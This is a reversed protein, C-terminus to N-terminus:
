ALSKEAETAEGASLGALLFAWASVGFRAFPYDVLAHVFAALLGLSWPSSRTRRAVCGALGVWLAAYSLGGEATWELWDSHAHEVLAGDDFEAYQPYVTAFTGLGFGRWPRSAIMAKTAHFIERRGAFPDPEAFRKILRDGGALAAVAAALFALVVAGRRSSLHLKSEPGRDMLLVGAVAEAILIAAGARSGSALGAGLVLVPPIAELWRPKRSLEYLAAPFCLELFQAFNNRSPFPGWNDPYAAPFLWLIKSPSTWYALVSIVSVAAGFWSFWTLFAARSAPRPFALFAGLATASLALNRLAANLTAYRYVTAGLALQAFGWVGLGLWLLTIRPFRGTYRSCQITAVSFVGIEYGWAILPDPIWIAATAFAALSFLNAGRKCVSKSDRTRASFAMKSPAACWGAVPIITRFWNNSATYRAALM